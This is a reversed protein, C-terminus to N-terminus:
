TIVEALVLSIDLVFKRRFLMEKQLLVAGINEFGILFVVLSLARIVNTAEPADFYGAFFPAVFFILMALISCRLINFTWVSDLYKRVDGKEQVLAANFGPQFLLDAAGLVVSALAFLGFVEPFLLRALIITKGFQLSKIVLRGLFALAGGRIVGQEITDYPSWMRLCFMQLRHTYNGM